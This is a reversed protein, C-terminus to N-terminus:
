VCLLYININQEHSNSDLEPTLRRWLSKEGKKCVSPITQDENTSVHSKNEALPGVASTIHCRVPTFGLGAAPLTLEPLELERLVLKKTHSSQCVVYYM